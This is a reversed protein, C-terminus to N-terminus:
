RGRDRRARYRRVEILRGVTGVLPVLIAGVLAGAALDWGRVLAAGGGILVGFPVLQLPVRWAPGGADFGRGAFTAGVAGLAVLALGVAVAAGSGTSLEV